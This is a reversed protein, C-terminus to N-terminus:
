SLAELCERCYAKTGDVRWGECRAERRASEQSYESHPGETGCDDCECWYVTKAQSKDSM